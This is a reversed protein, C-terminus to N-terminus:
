FSFFKLEGYNKVVYSIWSHLQKFEGEFTFEEVKRKNKFDEFVNYDDYAKDSYNSVFSYCNCWYPPSIYLNYDEYMKGLNLEKTICDGYMDFQGMKGIVIEPSLKKFDFIRKISM